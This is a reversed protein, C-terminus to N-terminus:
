SRESSQLSKTLKDLTEVAATRARSWVSPDDSYPMPVISSRVSEFKGYHRLLRLAGLAKLQNRETTPPRGNVKSPSLPTPRNEALFQRFERTLEANSKSWDVWHPVFCDGKLHKYEALLECAKKFEVVPKGRQSKSIEECRREVIQPWSSGHQRELELIFEKITLCVGATEKWERRFRDMPDLLTALLKSKERETLRRSTANEEYTGKSGEEFFIVEHSIRISNEETFVSSGQSDPWNGKFRVYRRWDDEENKKGWYAEVLRRLPTEQLYLERCFEWLWCHYVLHDPVQEFYWENRSLDGTTRGAASPSQKSSQKKRM